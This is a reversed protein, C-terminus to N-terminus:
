ITGFLDKLQGNNDCALIEDFSFPIIAAETGGKMKDIENKLNRANSILIYFNVLPRREAIEKRKRIFKAAKLTNQQWSADDFHSFILLFEYKGHIFTKLFNTAGILCFPFIANRDGMEHHGVHSIYLINKLKQMVEYEGSDSKLHENKMKTFDLSKFYGPTYFDRFSRKNINKKSEIFVTTKIIRVGIASEKGFRNKLISTLEVSDGESLESIKYDSLLSRSDFYILRGDTLRIFGYKLGNKTSTKLTEVIGKM